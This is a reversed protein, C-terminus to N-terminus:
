NSANQARWDGWHHFWALTRWVYSPISSRSLQHMQVYQIQIWPMQCKLLKLHLWKRFTVDDDSSSRNTCRQVQHVHARRADSNLLIFYSLVHLRATTKGFFFETRGGFFAHFRLSCQERGSSKSGTPLSLTSASMWPPCYKPSIANVAM